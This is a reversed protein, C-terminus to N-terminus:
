LIKYSITTFPVEILIQCGGGSNTNIQWTANLLTAREQMNKIGNGKKGNAYDFGIGDDVIRIHLLNEAEEIQVKVCKAQSYKAVNNLAEKVLLYINKKQEPGWLQDEKIIVGFISEIQKAELVPIAYNKIHRVIGNTSDSAPNIAWVLDAMREMLEQSIHSIRGAYKQGSESSNQQMLVESFIRISSVSSGMDDHLERAIRNREELRTQLIAATKQAKEELALAIAAQRELNTMKLRYGMASSFFLIEGLNGAMLWELPGFIVRNYSVQNSIFSMLGCIFFYVSGVFIWRQFPNTQLRYVYILQLITIGFIFIRSIVFPLVPIQISTFHLLVVTSAYIALVINLLQLGKFIVTEKNKTVNLAHALFNIYLLFYIIQLGENFHVILFNATKIGLFIYSIEGRLFIFLSMCSLYAAYHLFLKDRYYSYLVIHYSTAMLSAGLTILSTIIFITLPPM